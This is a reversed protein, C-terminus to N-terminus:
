FLRAAKEVIAFEEMNCVSPKLDDALGLVKYREEAHGLPPQGESHTGHIPLSHIPIGQLNTELFNLVPDIAYAFWNMSSPCGQALTDRINRLPKGPINNIVPITVRSSYLNTLRTIIVESLGKKWLVQFVWEFVTNDFAAVFDLDIM